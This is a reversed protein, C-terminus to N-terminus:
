REIAWHSCVISALMSAALILSTLYFRTEREIKDGIERKSEVVVAAKLGPWDHREQLWDVDQIVTTTRTGIRGHDGDV